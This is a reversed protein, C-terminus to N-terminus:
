QETFDVDTLDNEANVVRPAFNFQKHLVTLIYTEGGAATFRYYGFPNTFATQTDGRSDTLKIMARFVGRGSSTTVKGGVTVAAATAGAQLEVAGIDAGDGGIANTISPDDFPRTLGRQDTMLGFSNGKDRAPSDALLLHTATAGGNLKLTPDLKPNVGVQNQNADGNTIGTTGSGDGILNFASGAAVAGGFDLALSVRDATNGAVITNKLNATGLNRIGGTDCGGCGIGTAKNRTVTVSTLNLTGSSNYIGGGGFFSASNGSITSNTLTATGSSNFIGGGGGSSSLNGSVTSNTLTMTGGNNYIGSGGLGGNNGSVTSDTFTMTGGNNFIGGGRETPAVNGSVTSNTLTLTTTGGNNYIGGGSGPRYVAQNDSITSNTLTLTGNNYIGGGLGSNAAGEGNGQTITLGKIALNAGPNLYFVRSRYFCSILLNSAGTSSTITLTGATAASNVVLEGLRLIITCVGATCRPDGAPIAFNITDNAATANAVSVAERLSCDVGSVCATNRDDTNTVTLTLQAQTSQAAFLCVLFTFATILSLYKKM